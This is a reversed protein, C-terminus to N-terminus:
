GIIEVKDNNMLGAANAEDTDLHVVGKVDNRNRYVALHMKMESTPKMFGSIVRGSM